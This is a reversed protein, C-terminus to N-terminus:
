AASLARCVEQIGEPGGVVLATFGQARLQNIRRVQLPRPRKSPAKVEVFVVRGARLCIRDPVGDVGPCTLKWCIGGDAEIAQRLAQEITKENM